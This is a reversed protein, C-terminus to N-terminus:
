GILKDFIFGFVNMDKVFKFVTSNEYASLDGSLYLILYLVSSVLAVALLGSVAGVLLGLIRDGTRLLPLKTIIGVLHIVVTLAIYIIIFLLVYGIVAALVSSMAHDPFFTNGIWGSFRGGLLVTLIVTIMLRGFSLVTKLFGRILGRLVMFGFLAVLVIDFLVNM